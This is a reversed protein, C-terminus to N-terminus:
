FNFFFDEIDSYINHRNHFIAHMTESTVRGTLNEKVSNNLYDNYNSIGEYYKLDVQLVELDQNDFHPKINWSNLEEPLTPLIIQQTTQSNYILKWRYIETSQDNNELIANGIIHGSGGLQLNIINSNLSYAISWDPYEYFELPEGMRKTFYDELTLEYRYKYFNSNFDYLIGNSFDSLEDLIRGQNWLLHSSDNQYEEENLYGYLRLNAHKDNGLSTFNANYFRKEVGESSFQALDINQESNVPRDLFLYKYNYNDWNYSKLYIKSSPNLAYTAENKFEINLLGNEPNYSANYDSGEGDLSVNGFYNTVSYQEHSLSTIKKQPKFNITEPTNRTINTVTTLYSSQAYGNYLGAFTIMFETSDDIDVDTNLIIENTIQTVEEIELINGNNDSAFIFFQSLSPSIANEALNIKILRRHFISNISKESKNGLHDYAEIKLLNEGTPYDDPNIEINYETENIFNYVISDNLSVRVSDIISYADDILPNLLVQEDIVTGAVLNNITIEPGSNDVVFNINLEAINLAEDSAVINLVNIGDELLSTDINFSYNISDVAIEVPNNNINVEISTIGQNDNAKFFVENETGGIITQNELTIETITPIENDVIIDQQTTATNGSLDTATVSLIFQTQTKNLVIGKGSLKSAYQNLDITIKYPAETDEGVKENDLFAEIKSIGKADQASIEIEIKNGVIPTEESGDTNNIGQIAFSVTPPTIDPAEEDKSCSTSLILFLFATLLTIRKTM